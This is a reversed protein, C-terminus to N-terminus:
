SARRLRRSIMSGLYLLLLSAGLEPLLLGLALLVLAAGVGLQGNPLATPAGLKGPPKRRFWMFMAAVSMTLLGTAVLLNLIQNIIGFLQGEHAAVGYAIMRDIIGKDAFHQVSQITGSINVLANIRDPRNQTDSRVRWATEDESPPTIIVPAPFGIRLATAAVRDLGEPLISGAATAFDMDMGPMANTDRPQQVQGAIMTSAPVAGIEWDQIASMRGIQTEVRSLAHGWVFSWPLGSILFLALFLSVWLGTVSHLDRWRRRGTITIRPYLLGAMGQMRRPWWLYFGTAILVITWSAVMEMIISGVNGILLQGHLKFVIREFRAEEPVQKLIACSTPDVYVRIATGGRDVIVRAASHETQPLEYALFHSGPVAHLAAIVEQTPTSSAGNRALHDYRWDIWRDIQPKFLYVSGTVCLFIIFPLCFLGAFFHWRWVTRYDPWFSSRPSNM